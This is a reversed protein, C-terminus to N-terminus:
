RQQTAIGPGAPAGARPGERVGRTLARSGHREAFVHTFEAGLFFIQASYYVWVLFVVLSGAAGYASGLAATGIYLGILYKGISFLAATVAAGIWVDRWEIRADPVVKYLLAFALTVGLFSIAMNVAQLVVAPVPLFSGFFSGAATIAANALLSVMLLFGIGVVMAFATFRDHLMAKLGTSNRARIGWILNLSDRLEICVGSAGFLLTLIGVLGAVIGAGPKHAHELLAQIAQGGERGVLNQIQWVIQGQAAKEGFVMGAIAICIVLLPAISLMTYFSLAAGLRSANIESWKGVAGKALEKVSQLTVPEVEIPMKAVGGVL